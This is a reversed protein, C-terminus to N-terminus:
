EDRQLFLSEKMVAPSIRLKQFANKKALGCDWSVLFFAAFLNVFGAVLSFVAKTSMQKRQFRSSHLLAAPAQVDLSPVREPVHAILLNVPVVWALPTLALVLAAGEVLLAAAGACHSLIIKECMTQYQRLFVLYFRKVGM